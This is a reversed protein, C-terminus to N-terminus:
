EYEEEKVESVDILEEITIEIKHTMFTHKTNKWHSYHETPKGSIRLVMKAENKNRLEKISNGM